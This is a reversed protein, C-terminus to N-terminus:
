ARTIDNGTVNIAVPALPKQAPGRAVSGDTIRYRSGHCPCNITGDAVTSVSCGQHTCTTSFALISGAEPQTLV